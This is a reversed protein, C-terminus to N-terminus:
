KETFFKKIKMIIKQLLTFENGINKCNLAIIFEPLNAYVNIKLTAIKKNKDNFITIFENGSDDIGNKYGTLNKIKIEKRFFLLNKYILKENQIRAQILEYYGTKVLQYILIFFIFIFYAFWLYHGKLIMNQYAGEIFLFPLTFSILTLSFRFFIILYNKIKLKM